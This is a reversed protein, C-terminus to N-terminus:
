GKYDAFFSPATSRSTVGGDVYYPNDPFADRTHMLPAYRVNRLKGALHPVPLIIRPEFRVQWQVCWNKPPKTHWLYRGGDTWFFSAANGQQALGVAATMDFFQWYLGPLGGRFTLPLIYIDSAFQGSPVNAGATTNTSEPIADDFIVPYQVGDILLYQNNRMNDRMSIQDGVDMSLVQDGVASRLQCGYTMYSCPWVGTIEYFLTERMVLALGVPSLNMKEANSRLIRVMYTLWRVIDANLGTDTVLKFNYNNILSNLSPCLQGTIADKKNTGILLDLGPFERYGGGGTNNAPNGVYLQRSLKNQFEIGLEAFRVALESNLGVSGMSSSPVTMGNGNDGLAVLPDNIVTLDMVESRNIQQTPTVLEFERTMYQYRGFQATQLCNKMPGAVPADDCIGNPNVGSGPLFGTLYAFLPDTIRTGLAPLAGALGRPQVRTSIVNNEIGAMSWLGNPGHMYPLSPTGTPTTHRAGAVYRGGGAVRQMNNLEELLKQLVSDM